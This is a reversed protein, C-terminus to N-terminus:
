SSMKELEKQADDSNDHWEGIYENDVGQVRFIEKDWLHNYGRHIMYEFKM